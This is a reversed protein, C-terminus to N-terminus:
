NKKKIVIVVIVVVVAVGGVGVLILIMTNDPPPNTDTPTTDSTDTTTSILLYYAIAEHAEDMALPISNVGTDLVESDIVWHSFNYGAIEVATIVIAQGDNFWEGAPYVTPLPSLGGPNTTCTLQYQTQWNAIATKPADMIILNSQSYVVGTANGSWSQFVFREGIVGAVVGVALGAYATSGSSYWGEGSSVGESSIVTLYYETDWIATASRPGNMIISDSQTHNTGSADGTWSQFVFRQGTIGSVIDADLGAYVISGAAYWGSGNTIGYDSNVTLYYETDYHATLIVDYPDCAWHLLPETQYAPSILGGTWHSWIYRIGLSGYQTMPVEFDILMGAIWEFTTPAIYQFGGVTLELGVPDTLFTVEGGRTTYYIAYPIEYETWTIAPYHSDDERITGTVAPRRYTLSASGGSNVIEASSWSHPRNAAARRYVVDNGLRYVIHFYPCEITWDIEGQGDVGVDVDTENLGSLALGKAGWNVGNNTSYAIWIDIDISSYAHQWAVVVTGTTHGAAISTHHKENSASSIAWAHSWSSGRTTSHYVGVSYTSTYDAGYAYAVYVHDQNDSDVTYAISLDCYVNYDLIAGLELVTSWDTGKNSSQKVIMDRDDYSFLEEYAVYLRNDSGYGFECTICPYRDNDADTDIYMFYSGSSNYAYGVIDYNTSSIEKEYIVYVTNFFQSDVVLKPNGCNYSSSGFGALHTWTRGGDSSMRLRIIMTGWGSYYEEHAVYLNGTSDSAIDPNRQEESSSAIEIDDVWGENKWMVSIYAWEGLVDVDHIDIHLGGDLFSEGSQYAADDLTTTGPHADQIKVIGQGSAISEDCYSILVGTSPLYEDNGYSSRVEVLYYQTSSILIKIVQNFSIPTEQDFLNRAIHSDYSLEVINTIWELQIKCYAMPHAPSYGSPVGNWSGSAMLGWEDVFDDEGEHGYHYLDPLGIDHGFEHAIVGICRDVDGGQTEPVISCSDFTKEDTVFHGPWSWRVSWIDSSVGSSEQGNGAHLVMIHQYLSFDVFPDAVAIADDVLRWSDNDGDDDYDDTVGSTSGDAGYYAKTTGLNYWGAIDGSLSCQGFSIEQYYDSVNGFILSDYTSPIETYMLDSFYVLIVILTQPGVPALEQEPFYDSSPGGHYQIEPSAPAVPNAYPGIEPVMQSKTEIDADQTILQSQAM